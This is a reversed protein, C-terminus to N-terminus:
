ERIETLPSSEPVYVFGDFEENIRSRTLQSGALNGTISHIVASITSMSRASRRFDFYYIPLGMLSDIKSFVNNLNAARSTQVGASSNYSFSGRGFDSGVSYFDEGLREALYHGLSKRGSSLRRRLHENHAWIITKTSDSDFRTIWRLNEYMTSDRFNVFKVMDAQASLRKTAMDILKKPIGLNKLHVAFVFVLTCIQLLGDHYM